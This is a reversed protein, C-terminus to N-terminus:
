KRQAQMGEKVSKISHTENIKSYNIINLLTYLCKLNPTPSRMHIKHTSAQDQLILTYMGTSNFSFLFDQNAEMYIHIQNQVILPSM